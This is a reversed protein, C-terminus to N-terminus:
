TPTARADPLRNMREIPWTSRLPGARRREQEARRDLRVVAVGHQEPVLLDDVRNRRTVGVRRGLGHDIDNVVAHAAM